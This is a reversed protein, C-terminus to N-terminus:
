KIKTVAFSAKFLNKLLADDSLLTRAMLTDMTSPSGITKEVFKKEFSGIRYRFWWIRLYWIDYRGVLDNTHRKIANGM